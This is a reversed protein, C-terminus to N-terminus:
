SAQSLWLEAELALILKTAAASLDDHSQSAIPAFRVADCTRFFAVVQGALPASVGSRELHGAVEAPTPEAAPLDLRERLYHSLVGAAGDPGGSRLVGLSHEAARSRRLRVLRAADPYTRRWVVYWALCLLPPAALGVLIMFALRWPGSWILVDDHQLVAPGEALLYLRAPPQPEPAGQVDTPQVQARPIVRLPVKPVYTTQYSGSNPRVAGPRYYVFPWSAVEKVSADRPRLRYFFEWTPEDPELYLSPLVSLSGLSSVAFLGGVQGRYRAFGQEGPLHRDREKVDEIRFQDFKPFRRLNPRQPFHEPSPANGRIRVVLLLPDGVQVAVPHVAMTVGYSGVAGNFHMPRRVVPPDYPDEVDGDNQAAAPLLSLFLSLLVWSALRGSRAKNWRGQERNM